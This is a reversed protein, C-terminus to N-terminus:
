EKTHVLLRAAPACQPTDVRKERQQEGHGNREVHEVELRLDLAELLLEVGDDQRVVVLLAVHLVHGVEDAVAQRQRLLGGLRARVGDDEAADVEHGLRRFNQVGLLQHQERVQLGAAAEGVAARGRAKRAKTAWCGPAKTTVYTLLEAATFAMLSTMQVEELAARMTSFAGWSRGRSKAGSWCKPRQTIFCVPRSITSQGPLQM